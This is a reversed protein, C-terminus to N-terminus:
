SYNIINTREAKNQYDFVQILNWNRIARSKKKNPFRFNFANGKPKPQKKREHKEMPGTQIM